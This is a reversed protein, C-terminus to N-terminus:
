SSSDTGMVLLLGDRGRRDTVQKVRVWESRDWPLFFGVVTLAAAGLAEVAEALQASLTPATAIATDFVDTVAAQQDALTSSLAARLAVDARTDAVPGWVALRRAEQDVLYRHRLTPKIYLLLLWALDPLRATAYEFELIRAFYRDLPARASALQEAKVARLEELPVARSAVHRLGAEVEAVLAAAERGLATAPGLGALVAQVPSKRDRLDQDTPRTGAAAMVAFAEEEAERRRAGLLERLRLDGRELVSRLEGVWFARRHPEGVGSVLGELRRPADWAPRLARGADESWRWVAEQVAQRLQRDTAPVPVPM